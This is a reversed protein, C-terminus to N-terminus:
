RLRMLSDLREPSGSYYAIVAKGSKQAQLEGAFCLLFLFTIMHFLKRIHHFDNRNM